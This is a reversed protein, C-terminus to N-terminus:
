RQRATILIFIFFHIFRNSNRNYNIREFSNSQSTTAPQSDGLRARYCQHLLHLVLWTHGQPSKMRQRQARGTPNEHETPKQCHSSQLTYAIIFSTNRPQKLCRILMLVFLAEAHVWGQRLATGTQLEQATVPNTGNHDGRHEHHQATKKHQRNTVGSGSAKLWQLSPSSFKHIWLSNFVFYIRRKFDRPFHSSDRSLIWVHMKMIFIEEWILGIIETTKASSSARVWWEQFRSFSARKM